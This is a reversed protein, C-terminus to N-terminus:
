RAAAASEGQRRILLTAHSASIAVEGRDNVLEVTESVVGRSPDRSPRMTDLRVRVHVTDGSVIPKRFRVQDWGLSAVSTSEYLGLESKLGEMLALGFLGHAIRRPFGMTRAFADDTHLPHHDHTLESFRSLDTDTVTHGRTRFERGPAVDEYYLSEPLRESVQM